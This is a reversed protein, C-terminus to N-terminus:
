SCHPLRISVESMERRIWANRNREHFQSIGVSSQSLLQNLPQQIRRVQYVMELAAEDEQAELQQRLKAPQSDDSARAISTAPQRTPTTQQKQSKQLQQARLPEKRYTAQGRSLVFLVIGSVLTVVTVVGGGILTAATSSLSLAGAFAVVVVGVSVLVIIRRDKM